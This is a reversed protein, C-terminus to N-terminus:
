KQFYNAVDNMLKLAQENTLNSSVVHWHKHLSHEAKHEKESHIIIGVFTNRKSLEQVLEESTYFEISM